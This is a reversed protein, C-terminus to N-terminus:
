LSDKASMVKGVAEAIQHIQEETGLLGNHYMWVSHNALRTSNPFTAGKAVYPRMFDLTHIAPYELQALFGEAKLAKKFADRNVGDDLLFTYLYHGHIELGETWKQTRVGDVKELLENLLRGNDSRLLYQTSFKRLQASLIAAQFQGIRYNNGPNFHAYDPNDSHRGCNHYSYLQEYIDRSNTVVAGGEGCSLTKSSQFSFTGVEGFTGASRGKLRAGHAHASDEIVVLNHKKAIACISEMDCVNGGFHVPIIAKTKDTIAKEIEAPDICFTEPDVDVLVPLAGVKLPAVATAMFTYDPVIVEDGKGIGLAELALVIAVTGNCVTLMYPVNLLKKFGESFEPIASGQVGWVGSKLVKELAEQEHEDWLPWGPFKGKIAKEGGYLALRQDM